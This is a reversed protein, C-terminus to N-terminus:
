NCRDCGGCQNTACLWDRWEEYAVRQREIEALWDLYAQHAAEAQAIAARWERYEDCKLACWRLWERWELYAEYDAQAQAVAAEWARWEEYAAQQREIEALWAEYECIPCDCTPLCFVYMWARLTLPVANNNTVDSPLTVTGVSYFEPLWLGGSSDRLTLSGWSVNATAIPDFPTVIIDVTPPLGWDGIYAQWRNMHIRPRVAQNQQPPVIAILNPFDSENACNLCACYLPCVNVTGQTVGVIHLVCTLDLNAYAHAGTISIPSSGSPANDHIRFRIVALHGLVDMHALPNALSFNLQMPNEDASPPAPLSVTTGPTISIGQLVNSDYTVTLGLALTDLSPGNNYLLLVVDVYQGPAASPSLVNIGIRPFPTVRVVRGDYTIESGFAPISNFTGAALVLAVVLALMRKCLKKM